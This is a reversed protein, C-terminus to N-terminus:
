KKSQNCNRKKKRKEAVNDEGNGDNDDENYDDTIIIQAFFFQIWLSLKSIWQNLVFTNRSCNQNISQNYSHFWDHLKILNVSTTQQHQQEQIVM